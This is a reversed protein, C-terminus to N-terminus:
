NRWFKVIGPEPMLWLHALRSVKAMAAFKADADMSVVNYASSPARPAGKSTLPHLTNRLHGSKDSAM